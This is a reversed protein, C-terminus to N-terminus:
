TIQNQNIPDNVDETNNIKQDIKKMVLNEVMTIYKAKLYTLKQKM